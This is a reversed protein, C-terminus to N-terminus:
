ETDPLWLNELLGYSWDPGDGTEQYLGDARATDDVIVLPSAIASEPTVRKDDVNSFEIEYTGPTLFDFKYYGSSDSTATALVERTIPHRLTVVAGPVPSEDDALTTSGEIAGLGCQTQADYTAGDVSVTETDSTTNVGVKLTHSHTVDFPPAPLRGDVAQGLTCATIAFLRLCLEPPPAVFQLEATVQSAVELGTNDFTIDFGPAAGTEDIDLNSLDIMTSSVAIDDWGTVATGGGDRVTLRLKTVDLGTPLTLTLKSWRIPDSSADCDLRADDEDFAFLASSDNGGCRGGDTGMSVIHGSDSNSWICDLFPDAVFSYLRRGPSHDYIIGPEDGNAGFDCPASTEFDWCALDGVWDANFVEGGSEVQFFLRNAAVGWEFLSFYLPTNAYYDIGDTTAPNLFSSLASPMTIFASGTPDICTRNYFLCVGLLTTGNTDYLPFPPFDFQSGNQTPQTTIDGSCFGPTAPDVCGFIYDPARGHFFYVKGSIVSIDSTWSWGGSGHPAHFVNAPLLFGDETSAGVTRDRFGSCISATAMDLCYLRHNVANVVFYKSNDFAIGGFESLATISSQSSVPIFETACKAPTALSYDVCLFGLKSDSRRIAPTYAKKTPAHVAIRSNNPNLYPGSGNNPDADDDFYIKGEPCAAGTTRLKCEVTVAQFPYTPGTGNHHYVNIVRNSDPFAVDYGDGGASAAFDLPAGSVVAGLDSYRLTNGAGGDGQSPVTGSARVSTVTTTDLPESASWTSGDASFEVTWGEPAIASDAEYTAETPDWSTTLVVDTDQSNTVSVSNADQAATSSTPSIRRTPTNVGATMFAITALLAAVASLIALRAIPPINSSRGKEGSHTDLVRLSATEFM